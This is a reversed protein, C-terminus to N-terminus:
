ASDDPQADGTDRKRRAGRSLEKRLLFPMVFALLFACVVVIIDLPRMHDGLFAGFHVSTGQQIIRFALYETLPFLAGLILVSVTSIWIPRPAKRWVRQGARKRATSGKFLAWPVVIGITLVPVQNWGYRKGVYHELFSVLLWLLLLGLGAALGYPISSLLQRGTKRYFGALGERLRETRARIGSAVSAGAAALPESVSQRSKRVKALREGAPPSTGAPIGPHAKKRPKEIGDPSPLPLKEKNKAPRGAAPAEEVTSPERSGPEAGPPRAAEGAPPAEKTVQREPVEVRGDDHVTIEGLDLTAGPEPPPPQPKKRSRRGRDPTDM